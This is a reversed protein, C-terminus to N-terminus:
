PAICHVDNESYEAVSHATTTISSQDARQDTTRQTIALCQMVRTRLILHPMGGEIDEIYV